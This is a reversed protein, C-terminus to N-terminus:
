SVLLYRKGLFVILVTLVVLVVVTFTGVGTSIDSSFAFDSRQNESKKLTNYIVRRGSDSTYIICM